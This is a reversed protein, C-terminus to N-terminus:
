AKFDDIAKHRNNGENYSVHIWTTGALNHEFLLQDFEGQKLINYLERLKDKPSVQLDAAMGLIHQSTDKSGVKRNLAKCRYGSTVRIPHGFACRAPELVCMVLKYLNIAAEATPTNDIKNSDATASCVFEELSFHETLRM